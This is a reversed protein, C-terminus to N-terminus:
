ACPQNWGHAIQELGAHSVSGNGRRRLGAGGRAPM